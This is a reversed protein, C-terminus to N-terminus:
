MRSFLPAGLCLFLLFLPRFILQKQAVSEVGQPGWFGWFRSQGWFVLTCVSVLWEVALFFVAIM